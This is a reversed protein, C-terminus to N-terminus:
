IKESWPCESKLHVKQHIPSKKRIECSRGVKQSNQHSQAVKAIEKHSHAFKLSKQSKQCFQGAVILALGVNKLLQGVVVSWCCNVLQDTKTLQQQDTKTNTTLHQSTQKHLKSFETSNQLAQGFMSRNTLQNEFLAPRLSKQSIRVFLFSQNM